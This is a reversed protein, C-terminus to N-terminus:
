QKISPAIQLNSVSQYYTSYYSSNNNLACILCTSCGDVFVSLDGMYMAAVMVGNQTIVDHVACADELQVYGTFSTSNVIDDAVTSNVKGIFRGEKVIVMMLQKSGM